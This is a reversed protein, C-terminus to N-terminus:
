QEDSYRVSQDAHSSVLNLQYYYWIGDVPKEDLSVLYYWCVGNSQRIEKIKYIEDSWNATYGKEFLDKDIIKRVKDGIKLRCDTRVTLNPYLRKYVDKQNEHSVDQPPLGHASHPTANYNSVFQELVDKWKKTKNKTFYRQLRTKLTRIVREVMSAKWKSKTSISYHNIGYNLFVKQVQSNYFELGRDTVIHVPFKDFTKFISEFADATWQATKFKMPVAWIKRTFCDIVVLIFRYNSNQFRLQPYEILDAMFLDFPFRSIVKRRPFKKKIIRRHKSHVVNSRLYAEIKASFSPASSIDNYLKNLADNLSVDKDSTTKTPHEQNRPPALLKPQQRPPELLTPPKQQQRSKKRPPALLKPPALPIQRSRLNM